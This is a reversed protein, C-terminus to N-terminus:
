KNCRTLTGEVCGLEADWRMGEVEQGVPGFSGRADAESHDGTGGLSPGGSAAEGSGGGSSGSGTGWAFAPSAALCALVSLALIRRM